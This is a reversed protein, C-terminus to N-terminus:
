FRTTEDSVVHGPGRRFRAQSCSLRRPSSWVHECKQSDLSHKEEDLCSIPADINRKGRRMLEEDLEFAPVKGITLSSQASALSYHESQM